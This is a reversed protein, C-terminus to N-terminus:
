MRLAAAFQNIAQTPSVPQESQLTITGRVRSDMVVNRGTIVAMTRAVSEIDANAFNLTIPRGRTPPAPTAAPSASAAAPPAIADSRQPTQAHALGGPLHALLLAAAAVAGLPPLRSARTLLPHPSVTM